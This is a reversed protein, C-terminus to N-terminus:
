VTCVSVPWHQPDILEVSHCVLDKAVRAFQEVNQWHDKYCWHVLSQRLRGDKVRAADHEAAVM